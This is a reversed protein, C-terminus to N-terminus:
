PVLPSNRSFLEQGLLIACMALTCLSLTPNSPLAPTLAALTPAPVALPLSFLAALPAALAAAPLRALLFRTLPINKSLASIQLFVCLGGFTLLAAALPAATQTPLIDKIRTVDLIAPLIKASNEGFNIHAFLKEALANLGIERLAAAIVSFVAVMVCVSFMAKAAANVSDVFTQSTLSLDKSAPKLTIEGHARVVLAVIISSLFCAAYIAAGFAASGFVRVGVIGIIFSPGSGFCCCLLRGADKETIRSDKVLASILTIGVPYGGINALLFIGCIEEDFRLIKSLLFTLPKLLIRYLGSKQLYVSVASFAFLSPVIIELCASIAESVAGSAAKPSALLFVAFFAAAAGALFRKM